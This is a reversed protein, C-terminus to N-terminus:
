FSAKERFIAYLKSVDLYNFIGDGNIDVTAGSDVTTKERFYAYLKSVDLYNFIGDNNIDGPLRDTIEVTGFINEVPKVQDGTETTLLIDTLGLTVDGLSADANVTGNVTVIIEKDSDVKARDGLVSVMFGEGIKDVNIKADAGVVETITLGNYTPINFCFGDYTGSLSVTFSFSKGQYVKGATSETHIAAKYNQDEPEQQKQNVTVTCTATKSGDATTVTITATGAAKATVVGNSVTAVSTNSSTWTVAKNDANTPSVTATLTLTEGVTMTSATKNLSVGTVPVVSPAATLAKLYPYGDNIDSSIGWVNSFDWGEYTAALKMNATTEPTAHVTDTRGATEYNYYSNLVEGSSYYGAFGGADTGYDPVAGTSYCYQIVSEYANDGIFGGVYSDGTVNGKAYCNTIRAHNSNTSRGVLGGVVAYGSVTADSGSTNITGNENFGVLGGVCNDSADASGSTFCNEIAGGINCGALIGICRVGSVNGNVTLNKITGSNYGFLGVYEHCTGTNKIGSITYGNGDFIGIFPTNVSGIPTWFRATVAIDNKLQYYIKDGTKAYGAALAYLQKENEILYPYESDGDGEFIVAPTKGRVNITPYDGNMEWINDFDWMYYTSQLKMNTTSVPYGQSEYGNISRYYCNFITGGNHWAFGNGTCDNVKGSAYCLRITGYNGGVFGGLDYGDDDTVDGQAYCNEILGIDGYNYGVFGGIYAVGSVTATSGSTKIFGNENYGVM